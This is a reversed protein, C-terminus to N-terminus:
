DIHNGSPDFEDLLIESFQKAFKGRWSTPDDKFHRQLRSTVLAEQPMELFVVTMVTWNVFTDLLLGIVLVPIGMMYAIRHLRNNDKARKINMVALYFVWLLWMSGISVAIYYVFALLVEM